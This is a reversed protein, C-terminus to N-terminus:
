VSHEWVKESYTIRVITVENDVRPGILLRWSRQPVREFRGDRMLLTGLNARSVSRKLRILRFLEDEAMARGRNDLVAAAVDAVRRTEIHSVSAGKRFSVTRCGLLELILREQNEIEKLEIGWIDKLVHIWETSDLAGSSARKKIAKALMHIPNAFRTNFRFLCGEYNQELLARRLMAFIAKEELRVRQRTVGECDGLHALTRTVRPAKLIRENLVLWAIPGFQLRVASRVVDPLFELLKKGNWRHPAEAPLIQIGLSQAFALWDIEGTASQANFFAFLADRIEQSTRQGFSRIRTFRTQSNAVLAGLSKIGISGLANTARKSLHLTGVPLEAIKPDLRM